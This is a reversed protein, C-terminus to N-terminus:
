DKKSQESQKHEADSVQKDTAQQNVEQPPTRYLASKQGCGLLVLSGLGVLLFLRMKNLM